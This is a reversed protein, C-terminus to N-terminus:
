YVRYNITTTFPSRPGARTTISSVRIRLTIVATGNRAVRLNCIEQEGTSPVVAWTGIPVTWVVNTGGTQSVPSIEVEFYPNWTTAEDANRAVRFSYQRAAVNGAQYTATYTAARTIVSPNFDLGPSAINAAGETGANWSTAISITLRTGAHLALAPCVALILVCLLRTTGCPRSARRRTTKRM